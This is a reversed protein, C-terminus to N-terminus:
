MYEILIGKEREQFLRVEKKKLSHLGSRNRPSGVTSLSSEGLDRIELQTERTSM